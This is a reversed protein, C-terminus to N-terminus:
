PQGAIRGLEASYQQAARGILERRQQTLYASLQAAAAAGAALQKQGAPTRVFENIKKVDSEDVSASSGRLQQEGADTRVFLVIKQLDADALDAGYSQAWVAEAAAVDPTVRAAGVFRDTAAEFREQQASSLSALLERNQAAVREITRHAEVLSESQSRNIMGQVDYAQVLEALCAQRSPPPPPTSVCASGLPLTSLLCLLAAARRPLIKM